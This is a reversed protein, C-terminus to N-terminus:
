PITYISAHQDAKLLRFWKIPAFYSYVSDINMLHNTIFQHNVEYRTMVRLARRQIRQVRGVGTSGARGWVTIRYMLHPYIISYYLNVLQHFYLHYSIRNIVGVARAVKSCIYLAHSDFSLKDDMLIGLFKICNNKKNEKKRDRIKFNNLCAKHTIIMYKIKKINLSLRNVRLWKDICSLKRNVKAFLSRETDESAIIPTDDSFHICDLSSSRSMDNIYILFLILGIVSGQPVSISVSMINSNEENISVYQTRSSLYSEFWNHIIGRIGYHNLKQLLIQHNVTDFAKSFDLYVPMLMKGEDLLNYVRDLFELAADGTNSGSQFGCQENVLINNQLLFQLLRSCM